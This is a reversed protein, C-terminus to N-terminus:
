GGSRSHRSLYDTLHKNTFHPYSQRIQPYSKNPTAM